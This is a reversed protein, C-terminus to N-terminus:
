PLAFLVSVANVWFETCVLDSRGDGNCDAIAVYGPGSLLPFPAPAGLRGQGDGILVYVNPAGLTGEGAVVDAAGDANVDAVAIAFTNRGAPVTAHNAFGGGGDGLLVNVSGSFKYSAVALDLYGDGDLDGAALNVPSKGKVPVSATPTLRGRGDGLLVAISDTYRSTAAVDLKGDANWDGAVAHDCPAALAIHIPPAFGGLGDGRLLSLSGGGGFNATLLDPLGDGIFDGIAVATPHAGAGYSQAALFGGGRVGLLV